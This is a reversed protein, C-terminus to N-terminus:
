RGSPRSTWQWPASGTGKTARRGRPPLQKGIMWWLVRLIEDAPEAEGRADDRHRGRRRAFCGARGSRPLYRWHSPSAESVPASILRGAEPLPVAILQGTHESIIDISTFATGSLNTEILLNCPWVDVDVATLFEVIRVSGTTRQAIHRDAVPHVHYTCRQM